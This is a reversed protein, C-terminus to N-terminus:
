NVPVGLTVSGRRGWTGVDELRGEVNRQFVHPGMDTKCRFLRPTLDANLVYVECHRPALAGHRRSQSHASRPPQHVSYLFAATMLLGLPIM